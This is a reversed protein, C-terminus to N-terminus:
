WVFDEWWLTGEKQGNTSPKIRINLASKGAFQETDFWLIKELKPSYVALVDVENDTYTRTKASKSQSKRIVRLAGRCCSHGHDSYKVQVRKLQGDDIVLDYRAETTPRSVVIGKETARLQVKLEAIEGKMNTSQEVSDEM